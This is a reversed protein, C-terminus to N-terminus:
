TSGRGFGMVVALVIGAILVICVIPFLTWVTNATANTSNWVALETARSANFAATDTAVKARVASGFIATNLKYWIMVGVVIAILTTIVVGMMAAGGSIDAQTNLSLKRTM